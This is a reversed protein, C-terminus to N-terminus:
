LVFRIKGKEALRKLFYVISDKSLKFQGAIKEPDIEKESEVFALIEDEIQSSWEEFLGRIEPTAFKASAATEQFSGMMKQCMDMPNGGSPNGEKGGMMMGMMGSMGGGMSGGMMKQMMGSMMGRKEEENMGAFFRGMMNDMMEKKEESTMGDMMNDMMKEKLGMIEGGNLVHKEVLSAHFVNEREM